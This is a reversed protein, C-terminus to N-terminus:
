ERVQCIYCILTDGSFLKQVRKIKVTGGVGSITDETDPEPLTNNSTDVYPILARRDGHVISSDDIEDLMYNAFYCKVTYSTNTTSSVTGTAPDYAGYVPKVLTVQTGEKNILFLARKSTLSSM